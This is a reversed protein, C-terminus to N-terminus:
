KKIWYKLIKMSIAKFELHVLTLHWIWDVWGNIKAGVTDTLKNFLFSPTHTGIEGKEDINYAHLLSLSDNNNETDDITGLLLGNDNVKTLNESLRIM